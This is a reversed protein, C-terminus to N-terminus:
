SSCVCLCLTINAIIIEKHGNILVFLCKRNITKQEFPELQCCILVTNFDLLGERRTRTTLIPNETRTRSWLTINMRYSIVFSATSVHQLCSYGRATVGARFFAAKIFYLFSFQTKLSLTLGSHSEPLTIEKLKLGDDRTLACQVFIATNGGTKNNQEQKVQEQFWEFLKDLKSTRM